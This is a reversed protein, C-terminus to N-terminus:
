FRTSVRVGVERPAGYFENNGSQGSVYKKNALNTGYGEVM